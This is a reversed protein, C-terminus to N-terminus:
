LKIEAVSFLFEQELPHLTGIIVLSHLPPGLDVDTFSSLTGYCIRQEASGVRAVGVCETVETLEAFM